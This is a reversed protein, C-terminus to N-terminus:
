ENNGVEMARLNEGHDALAAIGAMGSLAFAFAVGLGSGAFTTFLLASMTAWIALKTKGNM